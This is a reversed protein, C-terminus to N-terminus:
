RLTELLDCAGLRFSALQRRLQAVRNTARGVGGVREPEPANSPVRPDERVPIDLVGSHLEAMTNGLQIVAEELLSIESHLAELGSPNPTTSRSLTGGALINDM